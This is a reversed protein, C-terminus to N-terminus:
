KISIDNRFIDTIKYKHNEYQIYDGIKKGLLSSGLVSMTSVSPNKEDLPNGGSVVHNRSNYIAGFKGFRDFSYKQEIVPMVLKYKEVKNENFYYLEVVDDVKVTLKDLIKAKNETYKCTPYNSCGYFEGYIGKKLILKNNCLPCNYM